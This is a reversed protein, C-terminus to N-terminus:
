RIKRYIEGLIDVGRVVGIVKGADVVPLLDLGYDEMMKLAEGLKEMPRVEAEYYVMVDNVSVLDDGRDSLKTWWDERDRAKSYLQHVYHMIDRLPLIGILEGSSRMVVLTTDKKGDKGRSLINCAEKLLTEPTVSLFQIDMVDWVRKELPM